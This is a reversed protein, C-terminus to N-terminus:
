ICYVRFTVIGMGNADASFSIKDIFCRYGAIEYYSEWQIDAIEAAEMSATIELTKRHKLFHIYESLFQPMFGRNPLSGTPNNDYVDKGTVVNGDSDTDTLASPNFNQKGSWIKM